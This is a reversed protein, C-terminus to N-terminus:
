EYRRKKAKSYILKFDFKDVKFDNNDLFESCYYCSTVEYVTQIHKKIPQSTNEMETACKIYEIQCVFSNWYIYSQQQKM